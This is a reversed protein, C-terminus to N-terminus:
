LRQFKQHFLKSILHSDIAREGFLWGPEVSDPFDIRHSLTQGFMNNTHVALFSDSVLRQEICRHLTIEPKAVEVSPFQEM